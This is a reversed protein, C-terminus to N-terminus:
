QLDAEFKASSDKADVFSLRSPQLPTSTTVTFDSALIRDAFSKLTPLSKIFTNANSTNAVFTLTTHEGETQDYRFYFEVAYTAFRLRLVPIYGVGSLNRFALSMSNLDRKGAWKETAEAAVQDYLTKYEGSLTEQDVVWERTGENLLEVPTPATLVSGDPSVLTGDEQVSMEKLEYEDASADAHNIKFTNMFRIGKDTILANGSTTQTIADGALPYASMVGTYANNVVFVEGETTTLYLKPFKSSLLSAAKDTIETLYAGADTGEPLRILWTTIGRKKGRLRLSDCSENLEMINFEYDGNHGYGTENIDENNMEPNTPAYPGTINNPDSFIHFVENYSSFSLVPGDDTIVEFSSRDSTLNYDLWKNNGTVNVSGNKDFEMVMLYGPEESNAFYEMLWAGGNACLQKTYENKATDLRDAASENFLMDEKNECSSLAAALALVPLIYLKKNM